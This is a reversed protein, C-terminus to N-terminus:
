RIARPPPSPLPLSVSPPVGERVPTHDRAGRRARLERPSRPVQTGEEQCAQCCLGTRRAHWAGEEEPDAVLHPTQGFPSTSLLSPWSCTCQALTEDVCTRVSAQNQGIDGAGRKSPTDMLNEKDELLVDSSHWVPLAPNEM